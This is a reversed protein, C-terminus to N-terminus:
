QVLVQDCYALNIAPCAEADPLEVRQTIGHRIVKRLVASGRRHITINWFQLRMQAQPFSFRLCAFRGRISQMIEFSSDCNPKVEPGM